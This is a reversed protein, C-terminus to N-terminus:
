EKFVRWDEFQIGHVIGGFCLGILGPHAINLLWISILGLTCYMWHHVHVGGYKLMGFAEDGTKLAGYKYYVQYSVLFGLLGFFLRVVIPYVMAIVFLLLALSIRNKKEELDGFGCSTLGRWRAPLGKIFTPFDLVAMIEPEATKNVKEDVDDGKIPDLMRRQFVSTIFNMQKSFVKLLQYIFVGGMDKFFIDIANKGLFLM